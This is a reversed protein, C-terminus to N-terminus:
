PQAAKARKKKIKPKPAEAKLKGEVLGAAQKIDAMYRETLKTYAEVLQEVSFKGTVQRLVAEPVDKLLGAVTGYHGIQDWILAGSKTKRSQELTFEHTSTTIRMGRSLLVVM